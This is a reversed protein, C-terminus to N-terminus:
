ICSLPITTKFATNFQLINIFVRSVLVPFLNLANRITNKPVNTLVTQPQCFTLFQLATLFTTYFTLLILFAFKLSIAPSLSLLQTYQIHNIKSKTCFPGIMGGNEYQFCYLHGIIISKTLPTVEGRQYQNVRFCEINTLPTNSILYM